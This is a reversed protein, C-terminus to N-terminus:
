TEVLWGILVTIIDAGSLSEELLLWTVFSVLARSVDLTSVMSLRRGYRFRSAPVKGPLAWALRIVGGRFVVQEM